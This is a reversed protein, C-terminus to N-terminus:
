MRVALQVLQGLSSTTRELYNLAKIQPLSQVAQTSLSSVWPKVRRANCSTCARGLPPEGRPDPPLPPPSEPLGADGAGPPIASLLALRIVGASAAAALGATACPRM